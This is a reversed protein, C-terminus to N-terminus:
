NKFMLNTVKIGSTPPMTWKTKKRWPPMMFEHNKSRWKRCFETQVEQNLFCYLIAVIFGQFSGICLEWYLRVGLHIYEPLFNFVIYHTGFLPILLLTSKSLRRYQFTNNLSINKSNLKKLLIQITNIFLAFNVAVSVMIPGQIVWWSPSDEDTDWCLVDEFYLKLLIWLLTFCTPAGWGFLVLWWYYKRGQPFSSILLYNLYLAEVLLWMFNAMTFFNLFVMSTKCKATSFTCYDSEESRLLISDKIFIAIGKLIFTSFLHVHIYNRPCRLRRFALLVTIAVALSVTSISYGVTYITQITSFFSVEREETNLENMSVDDEMSCAVSYPPFPDSWGQETCNRKVEGSQKTFHSVIDPCTFSISEGPNADPWCLLRDWIRKCGATENRHLQIEQLCDTENQKWGIVPVCDPQHTGLVLSPLILLSLLVCLCEQKSSKM